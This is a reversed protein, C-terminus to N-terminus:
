PLLKKLNAESVTWQVAPGLSAWEVIIVERADVWQIDGKVRARERLFPAFLRTSWIEGYGAIVDRMSYTSSRILRVTQLMGAIDLCDREFQAKYAEGATKSLLEAALELHRTKLARIASGFEKNPQEAMAVLELLSDTVGRCASLVIAERPNSSAEVIDAVRRFCAADAVSSGGFKHVVWKDM